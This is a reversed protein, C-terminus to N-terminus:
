LKMGVVIDFMGSYTCLWRGDGLIETFSNRAMERGGCM